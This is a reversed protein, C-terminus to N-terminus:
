RRIIDHGTSHSCKFEFTEHDKFTIIVGGKPKSGLIMWHEKIYPEWGKKILADVLHRTMKGM